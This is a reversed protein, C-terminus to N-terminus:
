QYLYIDRYSCYHAYGMVPCLVLLGLLLTLTGVLIFGLTVLLSFWLLPLMNRLCGQFSLKMAAWPQVDNLYVLPAAYYVMMVLPIIFLMLVLTWFLFTMMLVGSDLGTAQPGQSVLQGWLQLDGTVVGQVLFLVGVLLVCALLLGIYIAMVLVLNGMNKRFGAFFDSFRIVGEERARHAMAVWGASLVLSFLSVLLGAGPLLNGVVQIAVSLLLIGVSVGMGCNFLSFGEHIWSWGRGIAVRRPPQLKPESSVFELQEEGTYQSIESM